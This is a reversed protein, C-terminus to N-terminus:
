ASGGPPLPIIHREGPRFEVVFPYTFSQVCAPAPGDARADPESTGHIPNPATVVM